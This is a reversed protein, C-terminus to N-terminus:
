CVVALFSASCLGVISGFSYIIQLPSFINELKESVAILQQHIDVLKEFEKIAEEEENTFDIESMTQGLIDFEMSLIQVLSGFLLDTCVVFAIAYIIIWIQIIYILEYVVSLFRDFPLVLGLPHDLEIDISMIVGYVRKALPMICIPVFNLTYLSYNAKEFTKLISLYKQAKYTLQDAPSQPFHEDLKELIEQITKQNQYFILYIKMLLVPIMGCFLGNEITIYLMKSRYSAVFSSIELIMLLAM